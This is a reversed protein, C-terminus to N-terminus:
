EVLITSQPNASTKTAILPLIITIPVYKTWVDCIVSDVTNAPITIPTNDESTRNM